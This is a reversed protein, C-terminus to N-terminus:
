DKKPPFFEFYREDSHVEFLESGTKYGPLPFGKMGTRGPSGQGPNAPNAGSCGQRPVGAWLSRSGWGRPPAASVAFVM